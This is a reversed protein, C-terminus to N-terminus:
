TLNLFYKSSRTQILIEKGESNAVENQITIFVTNKVYANTKTTGNYTYTKIM